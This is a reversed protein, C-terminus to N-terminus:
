TGRLDEMRMWYVVSEGKKVNKLGNQMVDLLIWLPPNKDVAAANEATAVKNYLPRAQARAKKSNGLRHGNVIGDRDESHARKSM